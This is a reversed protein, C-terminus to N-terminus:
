LWLACLYLLGKYVIDFHEVYIYLMTFLYAFALHM